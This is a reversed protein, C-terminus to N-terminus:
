KRADTPAILLYFEDTDVDSSVRIAEFDGGILFSTQAKSLDVTRPTTGDGEYLPEFGPCGIPKGTITGTGTASEKVVSVRLEGSQTSTYVATATRPTGIAHFKQM